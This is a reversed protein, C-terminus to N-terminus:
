SGETTLLESLQHIDSVSELRSVREAIQQCQAPALVHNALVQFKSYVEDETVPNEVTGKSHQVTVQREVGSKLQLTLRVDGHSGAETAHKQIGDDVYCEMRDILQLVEENKLMDETWITPDRMDYFFAAATIFPLSMQGAMISQPRPFQRNDFLRRSCAVRVKEIQDPTIHFQSKLKLVADIALHSGGWAAYPKVERELIQYSRGLDKTLEDLRAARERAFVQCYGFKGELISWPGTFGKQGLLSATVGNHAPWGGLLRKSMSHDSDQSHESIGSAMSGAIGFANLTQEKNLDLAKSAAAAAGWIGKHQASNLGLIPQALAKGVRFAVEYGLVVALLFRKGDAHGEEAAAMAAPIVQSGPHLGLAPKRDDMEIGHAAVGNVLAANQPLSKLNYGWLTCEGSGQNGTLIETAMKVWPMRSAFLGVGVTDLLCLKAMEIANKPLDEYRLIALFDALEKTENMVPRGKEDDFEFRDAALCAKLRRAIM